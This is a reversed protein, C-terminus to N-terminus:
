FYNSLTENPNRALNSSKRDTVIKSHTQIVNFTFFFFFFWKPLDNMKIIRYIRIKNGKSSVCNRHSMSIRNNGRRHSYDLWFSASQLMFVIHRCFFFSAYRCCWHFAFSVVSSRFGNSNFHSVCLIFHFMEYQVVAHTQKQNRRCIRPATVDFRTFILTKLYMLTIITNRWRNPMEDFDIWQWSICALLM